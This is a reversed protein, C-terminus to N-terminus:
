INEARERARQNEISPMDHNSAHNRLVPEKRRKRRGADKQVRQDKTVKRKKRAKPVQSVM